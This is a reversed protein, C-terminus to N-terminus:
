HSKLAMERILEALREIRRDSLQRYDPYPSVFVRREQDLAFHSDLWHLSLLGKAQLANAYTKGAVIHWPQQGGRCKSGTTLTPLTLIPPTSLLAVRSHPQLLDNDRYTRWCTVPEGAMLPWQCAVVVKALVNFLKRWHNSCRSVISAIEGQHLPVVGLLHQYEPLPLSHEIHLALAFNSDGIGLTKDSSNLAVPADQIM